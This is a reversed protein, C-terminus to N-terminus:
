SQTSLKKWEIDGERRLNALGFEGEMGMRVPSVVLYRDFYIHCSLSEADQYSTSPLRVPVTLSWHCKKELDTVDVWTSEKGYYLIAVFRQSFAPKEQRVNINAAQYEVVTESTLPDFLRVTRNFM